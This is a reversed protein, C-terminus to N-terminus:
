FLDDTKEIGRRTVGVRTVGNAIKIYWINLSLRKLSTIHVCDIVVFFPDKGFKRIRERGM